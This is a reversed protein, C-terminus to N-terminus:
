SFGAAQAAAGAGGVSSGREDQSVQDVPVAIHEACMTSGVREGRQASPMSVECYPPPSVEDANGVQMPDKDAPPGPYPPLEAKSMPYLSPQQMVEAYPPPLAATSGSDAGPGTYAYLGSPPVTRRQSTVCVRRPSTPTASASLQMAALRQRRYYGCGGFCSMMIFIVVLWFYWMNWVRFKFGRIYSNNNHGYDYCCKLSDACCKLPSQCSTFCILSCWLCFLM